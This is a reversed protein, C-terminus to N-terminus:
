ILIVMNKKNYYDCVKLANLFRTHDLKKDQVEFKLIDLLTCITSIHELNEAVQMEWLEDSEIDGNM